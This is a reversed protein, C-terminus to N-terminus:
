PKMQRQRRIQGSLRPEEADMWKNLTVGRTAQPARGRPLQTSCIRDPFQRDDLTTNEPLRQQNRLGIPPSPGRIHEHLGTLRKGSNGDMNKDSVLSRDECIDGVILKRSANVSNRKKGQALIILILTTWYDMRLSRGCSRKRWLRPM